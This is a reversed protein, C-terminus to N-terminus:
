YSVLQTITEKKQQLKMMSKIHDHFPQDYFNRGDILVNYNTIDVKPLSYTSHSDRQVKNATINIPNGAVNQTTDNITLAFLRNVGQLM